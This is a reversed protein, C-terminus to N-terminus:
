GVDAVTGQIPLPPNLAPLEETVHARQKAEVSQSWRRYSHWFETGNWDSQHADGGGSERTGYLRRSLQRWQDRFQSSLPEQLLEDLTQTSGSGGDGGVLRWWSLFSEYADHPRNERCADKLERRVIADPQFFRERMRKWTSWIAVIAVGVVLTAALLWGVHRQDTEASEAAENQKPATPDVAVDLKLGDLTKTQLKESNPNWWRLEIEPLVFTGPQPFQYRLTDVRKAESVGRVTVDEVEPSGQYVQIGDEANPLIPPLLMATTGDAVRSIRRIIVDGQTLNSPDSPKWTQEVQMDTACVVVSMGETGPPRKSEFSLEATMGERPEPDTTFSEAGSFRVRFPPIVVNGTQQTYLILEHRQTIYSEGEVTESGVLPSGQSVFNTKSIQPLEFAATGSFPGPSYLTIILPVAQGTWASKLGLEAKVLDVASAPFTSLCVGLFLSAVTRRWPSCTM